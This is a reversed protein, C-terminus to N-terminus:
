SSRLVYSNPPPLNSVAVELEPFGLLGFFSQLTEELGNINVILVLEARRDHVIPIRAQEFVLKLEHYVTSDGKM